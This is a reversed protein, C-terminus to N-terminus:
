LIENMPEGDVQPLTVGFFSSFTPAFDMLSVTRELRGARIGPGLVIFLGDPRHDGSRCDHNVGEIIGTGESTLTLKSRDVNGKGGSGLLKKDSWEVLLDPLHDLCEGQYLTDTRRVSKIMPIGTDYDVITLLAKTLDDCFMDMEAGRKIVGDPERGAVNIRIGGVPGGNDLPFCKSKRLDIHLVSSPVHVHGRHIWDYFRDAVPKLRQKIGEPTYKWSWAFLADLRDLIDPSRGMPIKSSCAEAVQLRVLIDRLLFPAGINHAMGHSALFVVMTDDDIHTLIDGIAADIARYVDLIPDGTIAVIEPDYDPHNPDHLHWCQHGVCHSESFVQAFFDWGGNNLYYKTLEAKKQAGQILLDRFRCVEEPTRAYSDCSKRLPHRGFRTLVEKKLKEPWTCLGYNRDHSGWEVMQIGNIERSIGSLPIDLIAVKRGARSLYNWFPEPKIFEGTFCRHFEYTGPNLQIMRHFGHHGPTVGTVFSPWTAGEFFGELSITNGVLGEALLARLAPLTGAAAWSEILSKDGADMALFLVKAPSAM